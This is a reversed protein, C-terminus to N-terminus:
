SVQRLSLYSGAYVVADSAHATGQAWRLQLSGATAGVQLLGTVLTAVKTGAGVTGTILAGADGISSAALTVDGATAAALTSLGRPVWDLSAGAPGTFALQLDAAADASHLLMGDLTYTTSAAVTLVLDDDDQLVASNTVTEDATKWACRQLSTGGTLHTVGTITVDADLQLAGAGTRTIATDVPSTGPGWSLSGDAGLHITPQRAGPTARVALGTGGSVCVAPATASDSTVQVGPGDSTQTVALAPHASEGGSPALVVALAPEDTRTQRVHNEVPM